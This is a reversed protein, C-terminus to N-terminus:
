KAAKAVADALATKTVKAGSLEAVIDAAIDAAVASISAMAKHKAAVISASAKAVRIALEDDMKHTALNAEASLENRANVAVTQARSRAEALSTEYAKLAAESKQKSIVAAALDADITNKRLVIVGGTGPIVIRSVVFYLAAFSIALWFLQPPWTTVDLQPM